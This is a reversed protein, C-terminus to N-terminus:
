KFSTGTGNGKAVIGSIKQLSSMWRPSEQTPVRHNKALNDSKTSVQSCISEESKVSGDPKVSESKMASLIDFLNSVNSAKATPFIDSESLHESNLADTNMAETTSLGGSQGNVIGALAETEMRELVPNIQSSDNKSHKVDDFINKGVFKGGTTKRTPDFSLIKQGLNPLHKKVNFNYASTTKRKLQGHSGQSADAMSDATDYNDDHFSKESDNSFEQKGHVKEHTVLDYKKAFRLGCKKCFFSEGDFYACMHKALFDMSSFIEGCFSCQFPSQMSHWHEHKELDDADACPKKCISCEFTQCRYRDDQGDVSIDSLDGVDSFVEKEFAGGKLTKAVRTKIIKNRISMKQVDVSSDTETDNKKHTQEHNLLKTQRSFTEDCYRCSYTERDFHSRRHSLFLSKQLFERGCMDCVYKKLHTRLHSKLCIEYKYKKGCKDCKFPIKEPMSKEEVVLKVFDKQFKNQMESNDQFTKSSNSSIKETSEDQTKTKSETSKNETKTNYETSKSRRKCHHPKQSSFYKNCKDCRPIGQIKTAAQLRSKLPLSQTSENQSELNVPFAEMSKKRNHLKVLSKSNSKEFKSLKEASNDEKRTNSETTKTRRTCQHHRQSSYYQNCKECRLGGPGKHIKSPGEHVKPVTQLRSELPEGQTANHSIIDSSNEHMSKTNEIKLASQGSASQSIYHMKAKKSRSEASKIDKQIHHQLHRFLHKKSECCAGCEKCRFKRHNRLAAEYIYSKGCLRCSFAGESSKLVDSSSSAKNHHLFNDKNNTVSKVNIADVPHITATKGVNNQQSSDQADFVEEGSSFYELTGFIKQNKFEDPLGSVPPKVATPDKPVLLKRILDDTVTVPRSHDGPSTQQKAVLEEHQQSHSNLELQDGLGEGCVDCQYMKNNAHSRKHIVLQYNKQFTLGCWPCAHTLDKHSLLHGYYDSQSYFSIACQECNFEQKQLIDKSKSLMQLTIDSAANTSSQNNEGSHSVYDKEHKLYRHRRLYRRMSFGEGCHKCQFPQNDAHTKKHKKLSLLTSFSSTCWLCVFRDGHIRIHKELLAVVNFGENCTECRYKAHRTKRHKRLSAMYKFSRDCMDCQYLKSGESSCPSSSLTDSESGGIDTYDSDADDMVSDNYGTEHDLNFGEGSNVGSATHRDYQRIEDGSNVVSVLQVVNQRQKTEDGSNVGNTTQGIDQMHNNEQGSNIDSTQSTDQVNTIMEGSTVSFAAQESQCTHDKLQKEETFLKNCHKCIFNRCSCHHNEHTQLSVRRSFTRGCWRCSMAKESHGVMHEDLLLQGSFTKDCINCKLKHQMLHKELSAFYIYCKGCEQCQYPKETISSETDTVEGDLPSTAYSVAHTKMELDSKHQQLHEEFSALNFHCLGCKQCQYSKQTISTDKEVIAVKDKRYIITDGKYKVTDTTLISRDHERQHKRLHKTKKFVKDCVKCTFSKKEYHSKIHSVLKSKRSFKLHCWRCSRYKVTDIQIDSISKRIKEYKHRDKDPNEDSHSGVYEESQATKSDITNTSCCEDNLIHQSYKDNEDFIVGCKECKCTENEVRQTAAAFLNSRRSHKQESGMKHILMHSEWLLKGSFAEHCIECRFSTHQLMHKELSAPYTYCKGCIECKHEGSFSLNQTQLTENTETDEINERMCEAADKNISEHSQGNEAKHQDHEVKHRDNELKPEDHQAQHKRHHKPKKFVKDCVKCTFSKKEYHSKKHFVLKSRRSFTLHCWRCSRYKVKEVLTEAIAVKLKKYRYIDQDTDNESQDSVYEENQTTNSDIINTNCCEDSLIHQSFKDNEDFIVGCKECNFKENEESKVAAPLISSRRSHKQESGLKHILMHSEWLLKGSFGEHCIECKFSTHQLMHKELSAPYTYCKSCIECKHEGSFSLNQTQSNETTKADEINERMCEAADKNISENSQGNEAKHQDHEAKHQDNELKPENHKAQHKRHHKPKKFVKDCVKCTFSKKEYHSKKHSVLKSKRSFKLHCWRCSRYKVKEVLTEAIAAKLKPYRYIDQDTDNEFHDSVYEITNTDCCEDNLIHQSYEDNKDFIVGCKESKCTENEVSKAAAPLVSSRRSYKQESGVKHILMHSEWLLKGSFGEHCIECKFSTHQLMHKELSAPYTYCKSCIECKHEGSFSLNQTQSTENTKTEICDVSENRNIEKDLIFSETEMDIDVSITDADFDDNKAEGNTNEHTSNKASSASGNHKGMTHQELLNSKDFGKGCELCQYPKNDAHSNEHYKVISKRSFKMDCWQCSYPKNNHCVAHALLLSVDSFVEDCQECKIQHILRMHKELVGPYIYCKGCIECEYKQVDLAVREQKVDPPFTLKETSSNIVTSPLNQDVIVNKIECLVEQTCVENSAGSQISTLMNKNSDVTATLNSGATTTNLLHAHLSTIGIKQQQKLKRAHKKPYKAKKRKRRYLQANNISRKDVPLDDNESDSTGTQDATYLEATDIDMSVTDADTEDIDESMSSDSKVNATALTAESDNHLQMHKDLCTMQEFGEGCTPCQHERDGAHSAKHYRLSSQRMFKEACWQCSWKKADHESMHEELLDYATFTKDCTECSFGKHQQVHKDLAAQYIYCKGCESCSFPAKVDAIKKVEIKKETIKGKHRYKIHKTLYSLETFTKGCESCIAKESEPNNRRYHRKLHKSLYEKQTFGKGCEECFYSANDLRMQLKSKTHTKMHRKLYVVKDYGKGCKDCVFPKHDSHSKEHFLLSSKRSCRFDCWRCTFRRGKFVDLNSKKLIAKKQDAAQHQLQHNRLSTIYIYCKGCTKCKHQKKAPLGLKKKKKEAVPHRQLSQQKKRAVVCGLKKYNQDERTMHSKRLDNRAASPNRTSLSGSLSQNKKSVTPHRIKQHVLLNGHTRFKQDCVECYEYAINGVGGTQLAKSDKAMDIEIDVKKNHRNRFSSHVISHLHLQKQKAFNKKHVNHIHGQLSHNSIFGVSCRDCWFPTPFIHKRAHILLNKKDEFHTDCEQGNFSKKTLNTNEDNDTNNKTPLPTSFMPHMRQYHRLLSCRHRYVNQCVLCAHKSLESESTVAIPNKGIVRKIETVKIGSASIGHAPNSTKFFETIKKEPTKNTHMRINHRALGRRDSYCKSCVPCRYTKKYEKEVAIEKSKSAMYQMLKENKLKPHAKKCHLFLMKPQNQLKLCTACSQRKKRSNLSKGKTTVNKHNKARSLLKTAIDRSAQQQRHLVAEDTSDDQLVTKKSSKADAAQVDPHQKYYHSVLSRHHKYSKVCVHCKFVTKWDEEDAMYLCSPSSSALSFLKKEAAAGDKDSTKGASM